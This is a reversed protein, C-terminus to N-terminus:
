TKREGTHLDSTAKQILPTGDCGLHVPTLRSGMERERQAAPVLDGGNEGALAEGEGEDDVGVGLRGEDAKVGGAGDEVDAGVARGVM